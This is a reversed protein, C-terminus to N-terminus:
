ATHHEGARRIIRSARKPPIIAIPEAAWVIRVDEIPPGEQSMLSYHKPKTGRMLRKLLVRGDELEAIVYYGIMDATPEAHQREFYILAGNPALWPMSDGVVELAVATADAGPPIPALDYGAQGGTQIVEGEADAGVRGIIPVMNTGTDFGVLDAVTVDLVAALKELSRGPPIPRRGNELESIYGKNGLNSEDALRDQSWGRQKRLRKLNAGFANSDSM